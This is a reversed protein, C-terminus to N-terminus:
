ALDGCKRCWYVMMDGREQIKAPRGCGETFCHGSRHAQIWMQACVRNTSDVRSCHWIMCNRADWWKWATVHSRHGCRPCPSKGPQVATAGPTPASMAAAEKKERRDESDKRGHKKKVHLDLPPIVLLLGEARPRKGVVVAPPSSPAAEM